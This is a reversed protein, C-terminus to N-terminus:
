VGIFAYKTTDESQSVFEWGAETKRASLLTERSPFLYAKWSHPGVSFGFWSDDNRKKLRYTGPSQEDTWGRPLDSIQRLEGYVIADQDVIPGIVRYSRAQLENILQQLRDKTFFLEAGTM